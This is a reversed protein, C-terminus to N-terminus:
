WWVKVIPLHKCIHNTNIIKNITSGSLGQIFPRWRPNLSGDKKLRATSKGCWLKKPTPNKLFDLYQLLDDRRLSSINCHTVHVCWLLLREVEKAYLTLTRSSSKYESLFSAIADADNDAAILAEGAAKNYDDARYNIIKQGMKAANESLIFLPQITAIKGM